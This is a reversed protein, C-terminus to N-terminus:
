AKENRPADPPVRGALYEKIACWHSYHYKLGSFGVLGSGLAFIQGSNKEVIFGIM